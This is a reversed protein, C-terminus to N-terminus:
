VGQLLSSCRDTNDFDSDLAAHKSGLVVLDREFLRMVDKVRTAEFRGLHEM